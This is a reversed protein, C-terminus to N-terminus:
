SSSGVHAKLLTLPKKVPVGFYVKWLTLIAVLALAGAAFWRVGSRRIAKQAHM